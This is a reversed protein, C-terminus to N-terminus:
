EPKAGFSKGDVEAYPVNIVSPVVINDNLKSLKGYLVVKKGLYEPHSKLNIGSQVKDSGTISKNRAISVPITNAIDEESMDDALVINTMTSFPEATELFEETYTDNLSSLAGYIYASVYCTTDKRNKLALVDSVTYPKEYSGDGITEIKPAKWTTSYIYADYDNEITGGFNKLKGTLVIVNGRELGYGSEIFGDGTGYVQYCYFRDLTTSYPSDAIYFTANIKGKYLGWTPTTIVIGKVNMEKATTSNLSLDRGMKLAQAVSMYEAPLPLNSDDDVKLSDLSVSPLNNSNDSPNPINSKEECGILLAASLLGLLVHHLKM